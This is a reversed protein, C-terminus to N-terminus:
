SRRLIPVITADLLRVLDAPALEVQLGRRGGSVLIRDHRSVSADLIARLRRRQGLPSIGGLVYGTSREAVAPDAMAARRAGLAAAIAKLDVEGTVPVIGMALRDDASVILTKFVTAPDVGLAAAAELGYAHRGDTSPAIAYERLAHPVSNRQLLDTAPTGRASM